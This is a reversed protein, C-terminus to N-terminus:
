ILKFLLKLSQRTVEKKLTINKVLEYAKSLRHLEINQQNSEM